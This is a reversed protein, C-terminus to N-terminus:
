SLVLFLIFYADQLSKPAIFVSNPKILHVHLHAYMLLITSLCQLCWMISTCVSICVCVYIYVTLFFLYAYIHVTFFFIIISAFSICASRKNTIAACCHPVQFQDTPVTERNHIDMSGQTSCM